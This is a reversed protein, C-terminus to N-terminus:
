DLESCHCAKTFVTISSQAGYFAPVESFSLSNAEGSPIQEMEPGVFHHM